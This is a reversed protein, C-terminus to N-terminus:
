KPLYKCLLHNNMYNAPAPSPTSTTEYLYIYQPEDFGM